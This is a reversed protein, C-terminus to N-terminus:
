SRDFPVPEGGAVAITRESADIGVVTTGFRTEIGNDEYYAEPRVMADQM